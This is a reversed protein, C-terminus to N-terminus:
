PALLEVTEHVISVVTNRSRHNLHERGLDIASVELGRRRLSRYEV